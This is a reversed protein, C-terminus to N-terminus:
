RRVEILEYVFRQPTMTVAAGAAVNFQWTYEHVGAGPIDFPTFGTIVLTHILSTAPLGLDWNLTDVVENNRLLNLFMRGTAAVNFNTTMSMLPIIISNEDLVDLTIVGWNASQGATIFTPEFDITGGSVVEESIFNSIAGQIISEITAKGTASDLVASWQSRASQTRSRVRFYYRATPDGEVFKFRNDETGYLTGGVFAKNNAIEIEYRVINSAAGADWQFEIVGVNTIFKLGTPIPPVVYTPRLAATDIGSPSTLTALQKEIADLRIELDIPDQTNIGYRTSESVVM